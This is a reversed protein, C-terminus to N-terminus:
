LVVSASIWHVELPLAVPCHILPFDEQASFSGTWNHVANLVFAQVGEVMSDLGIGVFEVVDLQAIPQEGEPVEPKSQERGCLLDEQSTGRPQDDQVLLRDVPCIHLQEEVAEDEDRLCTGLTPGIDVEVDEEGDDDVGFM